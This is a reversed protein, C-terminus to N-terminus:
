PKLRDTFTRGVCAICSPERVPLLQINLLGLHKDAGNAVSTQKWLCLEIDRLRARFRRETLVSLDATLRVTAYQDVLSQIDSQQPECASMTLGMLTIGTACLLLRIRSM